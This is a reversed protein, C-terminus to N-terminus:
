PSMRCQNPLLHQSAHLSVRRVDYGAAVINAQVADTTAETPFGTTMVGEYFTGSSGNGNDGGTGLLISGKQENPYYANRPTGPRVGSYFTTLGGKQADGGRLDWKNGGGGDVFATVFRWSDISPVKNKRCQIGLVLRGGHRGHDLSRNWQWQGM